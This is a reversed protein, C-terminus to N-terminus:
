GLPPRKARKNGSGEALVVCRQPRPGCTENARVPELQQGHDATTQVARAGTPLRLPVHQIRQALSPLEVAQQDNTVDAM